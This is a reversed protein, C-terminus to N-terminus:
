HLWLWVLLTLSFLGKKLKCDQFVDEKWELYQDALKIHRFLLMGDPHWRNSRWNKALQVDLHVSLVSFCGTRGLICYLRTEMKNSTHWM